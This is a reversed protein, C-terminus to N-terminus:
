FLRPLEQESEKEPEGILTSCASILHEFYFDDPLYVYMFENDFHCVQGLLTGDETQYDICEAMEAFDPGIFDNVHVTMFKMAIMIGLVVYICRSVIWGIVSLFKKSM